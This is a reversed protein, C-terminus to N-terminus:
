RQGYVNNYREHWKEAEDTRMMRVGQMNLTLALYNKRAVNELQIALNVSKEPTDAFTLAGHHGLLVAREGKELMVKSGWSDLDAYPMCKIRKGFYDAHETCLCDIPIESIAHAVTYPSHTHCISKIDPNNKYIVVHHVLDVSPKLGNNRINITSGNELIKLHCMESIQDYPVGSPKILIEDGVRASLNGHTDQLVDNRAAMVKFAKRMQDWAQELKDDM